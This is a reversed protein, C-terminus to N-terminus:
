IGSRTKTAVFEDQHQGVRIRLRRGFDRVFQQLRDSQRILNLVIRQNNGGRNSDGHIRM